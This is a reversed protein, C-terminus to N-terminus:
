LGLDKIDLNKGLEAMYSQHTLDFYLPTVATYGEAVVAYDTDPIDQGFPKGSLWYYPRGNPDTREIVSDEYSHESQSALRIGKTEGQPFNVNLLTKHPLGKEAVMQVLEKIHEKGYSFDLNLEKSFDVRLSFAISPIGMTMGEIAAAVTGSHTVDFGLNSGINIGSLIMDPKGANAVGLMICDAPTGDVRYTPIDELGELRTKTYRLPSRVTIAHGAASQEVAPAVIVVEDAIDRVVEALARIGKAFIGDDNSILVKM